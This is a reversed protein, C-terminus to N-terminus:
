PNGEGSGDEAGNGGGNEPPDVQLEVDPGEAPPETEAGNWFFIMFVVVGVLLLVVIAVVTSSAAGNERGNAM